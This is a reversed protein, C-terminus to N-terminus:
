ESEGGLKVYIKEDEVKVPYVPITIEPAATFEGSRIDFVWDHCPCTLYYGNLEGRHMSCGLHPCENRLAFFRGNSNVIILPQDSLKIKQVTGEPVDQPALAAQWNEM